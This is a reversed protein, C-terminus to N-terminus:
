FFRLEVALNVSFSVRWRRLREIPANKPPIDFKDTSSFVEEGKGEGSEEDRRRHYRNPSPTMRLNYRNPSSAQGNDMGVATAPSIVGGERFWPFFISGSEFDGRRTRSVFCLSKPPLFGYGKKFCSDTAPGQLLQSLKAAAERGREGM